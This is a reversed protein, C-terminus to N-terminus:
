HRCNAISISFFWRGLFCLGLSINEKIFVLPPTYNQIERPREFYEEPVIEDINNSISDSILKNSSLLPKGTLWPAKKQKHKKGVVYGESVTWKKSKFYDNLTPMENLRKSLYHLRGGGLLNTKWVHRDTIAISQPVEHHDYYDLEFLLDNFTAFTRRFTLHKFLINQRQPKM